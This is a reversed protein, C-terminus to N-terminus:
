IFGFMYHFKWIQMLTGKLVAVHCQGSINIIWKSCLKKKDLVLRAFILPWANECTNWEFFNWIFYWFIWSTKWKLNTEAQRLMDWSSFELYMIKWIRRSQTRFLNNLLNLFFRFTYFLIFYDTIFWVASAVIGCLGLVFLVNFVASGLITGIGIDGKTIFM